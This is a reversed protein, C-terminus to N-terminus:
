GWSALRSEIYGYFEQNTCQGHDLEIVPFPKAAVYLLHSELACMDRRRDISLLHRLSSDPVSDVEDEPVAALFAMQVADDETLGLDPHKGAIAAIGEDQDSYVPVYKELTDVADALFSGIAASLGHLKGAMVIAADDSAGPGKRHRIYMYALDSDRPKPSSSTTISGKLGDPTGLISSTSQDVILGRQRFRDIEHEHAELALVDGSLDMEEMVSQDVMYCEGFGIKVGYRREAQARIEPSDRLGGVYLGRLVALPDIEIARLAGVRLLPEGEANSATEPKEGCLVREVFERVEDIMEQRHLKVVSSDLKLAACIDDLTTNPFKRGHFLGHGAHSHGQVSQLLILQEVDWATRLTERSDLERFDEAILELPAVGRIRHERNAHRHKQVSHHHRSKM